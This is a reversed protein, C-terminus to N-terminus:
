QAGREPLKGVMEWMQTWNAWWRIDAEKAVAEQVKREEERARRRADALAIGADLLNRAISICKSITDLRNNM